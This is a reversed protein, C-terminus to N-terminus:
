SVLVIGAIPDTFVKWLFRHLSHNKQLGIDNMVGALRPISALRSWVTLGTLTEGPCRFMGRGEQNNTMSSQEILAANLHESSIISRAILFAHHQLEPDPRIFCVLSGSLRSM